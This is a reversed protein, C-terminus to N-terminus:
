RVQRMIGQDDTRTWCPGGLFDAPQNVVKGARKVLSALVYGHPLRECGAVGTSAAVVAGRATAPSAYGGPGPRALGIAEQLGEISQELRGLSLARPVLLSAVQPPKRASPWRANGREPRHQVIKDLRQGLCCIPQFREGESM